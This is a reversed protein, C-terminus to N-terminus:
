VPLGIRSWCLHDAGILSGDPDARARLRALLVQQRGARVQQGTIEQAVPRQGGELREHEGVQGTHHDMVPVLVVVLEGADDVLQACSVQEPVEFVGGLGVWARDPGALDGVRQAGQDAGRVEGAVLAQGGNGGVGSRFVQPQEAV